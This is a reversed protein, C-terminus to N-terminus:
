RSASIDRRRDDTMRELGNWGWGHDMQRSVWVARGDSEVDEWRVALAEGARLGTAVRLSWYPSCPRTRASALFRGIEEDTWPSPPAQDRGEGRVMM